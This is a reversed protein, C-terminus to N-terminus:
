EGQKINEYWKIINITEICLIEILSEVKNSRESAYSIKYSNGNVQFFVDYRYKMVNYDYSYMIGKYENM